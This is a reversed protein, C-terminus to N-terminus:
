ANYDKNLEKKAVQDVGLATRQGSVKDKKGALLHSNEDRTFSEVV